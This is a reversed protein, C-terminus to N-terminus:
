WDGNATRRIYIEIIYFKTQQTSHLTNMGHYVFFVVDFRTLFLFLFFLISCAIITTKNTQNM